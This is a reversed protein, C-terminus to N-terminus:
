EDDGSGSACSRSGSLSDVVRERLSSNSSGQSQALGMISMCVVFAVIAVILVLGIDEMSEKIAKFVTRM